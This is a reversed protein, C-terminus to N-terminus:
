EQLHCSIPQSKISFIQQSEGHDIESGLEIDTLEVNGEFIAEEIM